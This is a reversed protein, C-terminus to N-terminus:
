WLIPPESPIIGGSPSQPESPSTPITIAPTPNIPNSPPEPIGTDSSNSQNNLPVIPPESPQTPWNTPPEPPSGPYVIPPIPGRNDVTEKEKKHVADYWEKGGYALATYFIISEVPRKFTLINKLNLGKKREKKKMKKEEKKEEKKEPTVEVPTITIKKEVKEEEKKEEKKVEKKVMEVKMAITDPNVVYLTLRKGDVDAQTSWAPAPSEVTVDKQNPYIWALSTGKAITILSPKALLNEVLVGAVDARHGMSIIRATITNKNRIIESFDCLTSGWNVVKTETIALLPKKVVQVGKSFVSNGLFGLFM